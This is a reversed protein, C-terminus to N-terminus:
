YFTVQIINAFSSQLCLIWKLRMNEHYILGHWCLIMNKKKQVPKLLSGPAIQKFLKCWIKIAGTKAFLNM